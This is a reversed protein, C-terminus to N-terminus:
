TLGKKGLFLPLMDLYLGNRLITYNMGSKMIAIETALHSKMVFKMPSSPNDTKHIQSTYLIHKVRAYKAAKVVQKHQKSRNKMEDSSVFLLKDIGSFLNIMSNYDDYDGFVLNIGLSKLDAAKAEDRVMAYIFNTNVGNKILAEIVAKGYNGTSGTIVIKEM